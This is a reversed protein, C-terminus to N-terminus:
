PQVTLVCVRQNGKTQDHPPSSPGSYHTGTAWISAALRAPVASDTLQTSTGDVTVTDVESGGTILAPELVWVTIV